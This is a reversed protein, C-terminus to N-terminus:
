QFTETLNSANRAFRSQMPETLIQMIANAFDDKVRTKEFWYHRVFNGRCPTGPFGNADACPLEKIYDEYDYRVFEGFASQEHFRPTKWQSCSQYRTDEPCEHWAQLIELTRATKQAIIFGTNLLTRNFRDANVDPYAPDWPDLPMALAHQPEIHWFNLLWEIPLHLAHFAADADAFVVFSYDSLLSALASPKIWTACRDTPEKVQLLKYDYGHIM